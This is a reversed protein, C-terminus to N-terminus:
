RLCCGLGICGVGVGLLCLTSVQCCKVEQDTYRYPSRYSLLINDRRRYAYFMSIVNYGNNEHYHRDFEEVGSVAQAIPIILTAQPIFEPVEASIIREPQAVQPNFCSPFNECDFSGYSKNDLYGHSYSKKMQPNSPPVMAHVLDQSAACLLLIFSLLFM